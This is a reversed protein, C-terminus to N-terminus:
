LAGLNVIYWMRHSNEGLLKKRMSIVCMSLLNVLLPTM